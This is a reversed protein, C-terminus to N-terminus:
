KERIVEWVIKKISNQPIRIKQEGTMRFGGLTDTAVPRPSVTLEYEDDIKRLTASDVKEAGGTNYVVIISQPTKVLKKPSRTEFLAFTYFVIAASLIILSWDIKTKM